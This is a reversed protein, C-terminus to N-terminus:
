RLGQIYNALAAKEEDTLRQSVTVMMHGNRSRTKEGTTVNV